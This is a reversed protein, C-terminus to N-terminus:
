FLFITLSGELLFYSVYFFFSASGMGLLMMMLVLLVEFISGLCDSSFNFLLYIETPLFSSNESLFILSPPYNRMLLRFLSNKLELLFARKLM